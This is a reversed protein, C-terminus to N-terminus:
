SITKKNKRQLSFWAKWSIPTYTTTTHKKHTHIHTVWFSEDGDINPNNNNSSSSKISSALSAISVASGTLHDHSQTLNEIDSDENVSHNEPDQQLDAISEAVAQESTRMLINETEDLHDDLQQIIEESDAIPDLEISVENGALDIQQHHHHQPPSIPSHSCNTSSSSKRSSKVTTKKFYFPNLVCM